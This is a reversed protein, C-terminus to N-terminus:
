SVPYYPPETLRDGVLLASQNGRHFGNEIEDSQAWLYDGNWTVVWAKLGQRTVWTTLCEPGHEIGYRQSNETCRLPYNNMLDPPMWFGTTRIHPQVNVKADGRNGMCGYIARGRHQFSLAMRQLWGARKFYTSGGLFVMLDCPVEKAARQYAGIDWGSDDHEIFKLNPLCSFLCEVESSLRTGNLAIVSIHDSAPPNANYSQLFRLAYTVHQEGADLPCVYVVAIKM